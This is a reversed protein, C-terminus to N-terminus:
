QKTIGTFTNQMEKQKLQQYDYFTANEKKVKDYVRKTRNQTLIIYKDFDPVKLFFKAAGNEAGRELEYVKNPSIKWLYLTAEQRESDRVPDGNEDVGEEIIQRLTQVKPDKQFIKDAMLPNTAVPLDTINKNKNKNKDINNHLTEHSNKPDRDDITGTVYVNPELISQNDLSSFPSSNGTTNPADPSSNYDPGLVQSKLDDSFCDPNNQVYNHIIENLEDPIDGWGLITNIADESHPGCEVYLGAIDTVSNIDGSKKLEDLRNLLVTQKETTLHETVPALMLTEITAKSVDENNKLYYDNIQLAFYIDSHKSNISVYANITQFAENKDKFLGPHNEMIKQIAKDLLADTQEEKTTTFVARRWTDILEKDDESFKECGILAREYFDKSFNDPADKIRQRIKAIKDEDSLGSLSPIFANFEDFVERKQPDALIEQIKIAKKILDANIKLDEKENLEKLRSIETGSILDDGFSVHADELLQQM